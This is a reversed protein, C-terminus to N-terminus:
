QCTTCNGNTSTNPTVARPGFAIAVDTETYGRFYAGGETGSWKTALVYTDSEAQSTFPHVVTTSKGTLINGSSAGQQLCIGGLDVDPATEGGTAISGDNYLTGDGTVRVIRNGNNDWSCFTHTAPVATLFHAPTTPQPQGVWLVIWYWGLRIALM